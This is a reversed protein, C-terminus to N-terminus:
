RTGKRAQATTNARPQLRRAVRRAIPYRLAAVGSLLACLGLGLQRLPAEAPDLAAGALAAAFITFALTSLRQGAACARCDPNRSMM